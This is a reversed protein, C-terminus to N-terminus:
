LTEDRDFRTPASAPYFNELFDAYHFRLIGGQGPFYVHEGSVRMVVVSPPAAWYRLVDDKTKSLALAGEVIWSPVMPSRDGVEWEREFVEALMPVAEEMGPYRVWVCDNVVRDVVLFATPKSRNWLKQGPSVNM